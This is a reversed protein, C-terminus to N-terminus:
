PQFNNLIDCATLNPELFFSNDGDASGIDLITRIKDTDFFKRNPQSLLKDLHVFNNMSGYPYWSFYKPSLKYKIEILKKDFELARSKIKTIDIKSM